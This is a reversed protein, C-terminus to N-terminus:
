LHENRELWRLAFFGWIPPLYFSSMRYMVAIALAVEEPVGAQVLGFTLGGETVGVGGPVPMLGALLAVSVNILIADGFGIDFGFARVFTALAVAFILETALNGGLLLFLRRPSNLGRVAGWAEVGLRKVWGAVFRRIRAVAAVVLLAAAVIVMVIVLVQRASDVAGGVDLDLSAPSFLVLCVLLVIQVVFGGFGDIAGAAVASGPPVGHRQFFRINVAVRAAATPIALNVYSVALQLAYVPGLPLPVPAAGLTSVAQTLRPVQTVLFALVILWWTANRVQDVLEGLDMGAFTTILVFVALAPLGVRLISGLTVRQLRVLAPVDSGVAAAAAARLHDLDLDGQRVGEHQRSSLTARQVYPLMATLEDAGVAALAAQVAREEGIMLTSTVLAQVEDTRRQTVSPAVTAGRFDIIGVDGAVVVLHRDDLQGHAIGAAHLTGLLKWLEAVIADDDLAVDSEAVITGRRRLVLLADDEVTSSATIVRDTPVGAQGAFLTLFAEHEVQQLRGFRLPSGAERYWVTRWLTSMLAADHADRGYVKVVLSEGESNTANVVFLGAQQRDAPGLWTTAVGLQALASRVLALGPRGASSGFALHTIAAAIVAVLGGALAGLPLSAGLAAVALAALVVIWTALRRVPRTLHPSVTLVAAGFIAVRPSPYWPPPASARLADWIAPWSGEVIRGVLLWVGTAVLVAVVIDRTISWRKRVVMAVVLVITVLVLLDIAFQWGTGLFGPLADLFAAIASVFGPSPVAAFSILALIVAAAVLVIVDSARRARPEDKPTAFLRPGERSVDAVPVEAVATM